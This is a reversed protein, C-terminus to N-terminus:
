DFDYCGPFDNITPMQQQSTYTKEDTSVKQKAQADTEILCLAVFIALIALSKWAFKM